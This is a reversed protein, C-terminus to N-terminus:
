CAEFFHPLLFLHQPTVSRVFRAPHDSADLDLFHFSGDSFLVPMGGNSFRDGDANASSDSPLGHQKLLKVIV